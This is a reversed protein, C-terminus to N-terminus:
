RGHLRCNELRHVGTRRPGGQTRKYHHGAKRNAHKKNPRGQAKAM